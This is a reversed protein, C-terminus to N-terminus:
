SRLRETRMYNVFYKKFLPGVNTSSSLVSYSKVQSIGADLKDFLGWKQIAKEDVKYNMIFKAMDEWWIEQHWYYKAGTHSMQLNWGNKEAHAVCAATMTSIARNRDTFSM